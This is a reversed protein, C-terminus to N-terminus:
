YFTPSLTLALTLFVPCLDYGLGIAVGPDIRKKAVVKSLRSYFQQSASSEEKHNHSPCALFSRLMLLEM